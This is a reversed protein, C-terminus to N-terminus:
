LAIALVYGSVQQALAYESDVLRECEKWWLDLCLVLQCLVLDLCLCLVMGLVM